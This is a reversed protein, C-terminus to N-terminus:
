GMPYLPIATGSSKEMGYAKLLKDSLRIDKIVMAANDQLVADAVVPCGEDMNKLYELKQTIDRNLLREIQVKLAPEKKFDDRWDEELRLFVKLMLGDLLGATEETRAEWLELLSRVSGDERLLAALSAETQVAKGARRSLFYAFRDVPDEGHPYAIELHTLLFAAGAELERFFRHEERELFPAFLTNARYLSERLCYLGGVSVEGPQQKRQKGTVPDFFAFRSDTREEATLWLSFNGKGEAKLTKGLQVLKQEYFIATCLMYYRAANRNCSSLFPWLNIFVTKGMALAHLKIPFRVFRLRMEEGAAELLEWSFRCARDPTFEQDIYKEIVRNM